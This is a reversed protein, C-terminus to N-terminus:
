RGGPRDCHKDTRARPSDRRDHPHHLVHRHELLGHGDRCGDPEGSSPMPRAAGSSSPGGVPQGTRRSRRPPRGSSSIRRSRPEWSASSPPSTATPAVRHTPGRHHLARGVLRTPGPVRRPRLRLPRAHAVSSALLRATPLCSCCPSSSSRRLSADWFVAKVGTMMESVEAMGGLDAGINIVNAVILLTCAGWLVRRSYRRRIVSALGRGSVMGLRACMLQVAAMAPFPFSRRGCHRMASDGAGAVSYTSIGSPDDDAAGTILGPGLEAFFRRLRWPPSVPVVGPLGQALDPPMERTM